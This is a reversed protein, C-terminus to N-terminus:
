YPDSWFMTARDARDKLDNYIGFNAVADYGVGSTGKINAIRPRMGPALSSKPLETTCIITCHQQTSVRKIFMSMERVKNEGAEYGPLDYLHFNDGYVQLERNPFKQRMTRIWGELAPLSGPLVSVDAVVLREEHLREKLWHMAKHYVEELNLCDKPLNQRQVYYGIKKFYESKVQFRSALLRPIRAGLADDVTHFLVMANPNNDLVRWSLNDLLTSKGQNPKGPVSIFAEEKPLGGGIARDLHVFGTVLEVGKENRMAREVVYDIAKIVNQPDYGTKRKEVMEVQVRANELVQIINSSNKSLESATRRAILNKEEDIRMTDQDVQRLVERWLGDKNLETVASLKQTMDMRLLNNQENVILPIANQALTLPDEGDDLGKKLRWTFLDLRPLKRLQSVGHELSGFSRVFNDPDDSGVPMIVIEVRLGIHGGINAEELLKVFRKTGERGAKDADLVFVLHKIGFSFLLMLHEATFATSGIAASNKMGGAFCTVCDSYGEFVWLPPTYKKAINFNFLRKSKHYIPCDASTNVFKIPKFLKGIEAERHSAELDMMEIEIVKADYAKKKDEYRLDRAAFGVARSHEDKITYVLNNENFIMKNDLDIKRLLELDHGFQRTMREIYNANNTVSGIGIKSVIDKPWGLDTLKSKVTESLDSTKLIRAASETARYVEQIYLEEPTMHSTLDPVQVAFSDALYKLNDTIWGAGVLPRQELYNAALFIDGTAGCSFCHFVKGDTGPVIGCSPNADTHDPNPCKFTNKGSIKYGNRELYQVLFSKIQDKVLDLNVREQIM